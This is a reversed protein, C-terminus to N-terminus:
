LYQKARWPEENIWAKCKTGIVHANIWIKNGSMYWISCRCLSCTLLHISPTGSDLSKTNTSKLLKDPYNDCFVKNAIAQLNSQYSADALFMFQYHACVGRFYHLSLGLHCLVTMIIFILSYHKQKNWFFLNHVLACMDPTINSQKRHLGKAKPVSHM